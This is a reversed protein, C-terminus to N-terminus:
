SADPQLPFHAAIYVPLSTITKLQWDSGFVSAPQTLVGDNSAQKRRMASGSQEEQNSLM